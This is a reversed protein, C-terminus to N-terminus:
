EYRRQHFWFDHLSLSINFMIYNEQILNYDRTGRRGIDVSFNFTSRTNGYPIGLGITVGYDKLQHGRLKLYTETYHFGLRYHVRRWISRFDTYDPTYQAGINFSSRNVLSDQQQGLFSTEAWQQISYDAGVLFKNDRGFSFGAGYSAPLEINSAAALHNHVTDRAQGASTTLENIILWDQDANLPTKNEYIMGLTFRYDEMIRTSYQMGYRFHFDGVIARSKSRVSFMRDSEPFILERSQNLTGFMYSINVGASLNDTIRVANGLFFQNIGGSGEYYHESQESLDVDIIKYGMQSYPVLGINTKWWKSLPFGIALHSLTINNVNHTGESGRLQMTNGAVGTSFIFSMTDQVAAAAPNMYNIHNAERLGYGIGGMGQNRGFGERALDGIGFRSYPSYSNKQAQVGSVMIFASFVLIFYKSKTSM